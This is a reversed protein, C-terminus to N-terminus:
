KQTAEEPKALYVVINAVVKDTETEIIRTDKSDTTTATNIECYSVLDDELLKQVTLNIDQLTNGEIRMNLENGNLTWADAQTRPFVVRELLDMVAVRDVRGLEEETMGSYTYHAYIDNLEGYEGIRALSESLQTRVKETEAQATAVEALKDLVLFKTFAALAVVILLVCPLLVWWRIRKVGVTAFNIETKTPARGHFAAPRKAPKPLELKERLLQM